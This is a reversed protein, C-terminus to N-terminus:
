REAISAVSEMALRDLTASMRVYTIASSVAIPIISLALFAVLLKYKM